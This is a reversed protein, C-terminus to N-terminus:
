LATPDIGLEQLKAYARDREQQMLDREQQMRDRKRLLRVRNKLGNAM